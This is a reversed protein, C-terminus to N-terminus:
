ELNEKELFDRLIRDGLHSLKYGHAEAYRKLLGHTEKGIKLTTTEM